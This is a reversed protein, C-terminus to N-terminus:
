LSNGGDVEGGIIMKSKGIETKVVSCFQRFNAVTIEGRSEIFDRSAEGWTNPLLSLAEFKYGILYHAM